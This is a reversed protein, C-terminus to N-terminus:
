LNRQGGFLTRGTYYAMEEITVLQYGQQTLTSVITEAASVTSSQIDHMLLIMCDGAGDLAADITSQTDRTKWDLTDVDWLIFPYNKLLEGVHANYSGYPPRVLYPRVGCVNEVIDNTAEVASLVDEDSLNVLNSHSMTHNGIQCGLSVMRKLADPYYRVKDGCVFFTARAGYKELVDLLADTYPGPGDDYTLCVMPLSPDADSYAPRVPPYPKGDGEVAPHTQRSIATTVTTAATTTKQTGDPELLLMSRIESMPMIVTQVGVAGHIDEDSLYVTCGNDDLAFASFNEASPETARMFTDRLTQPVEATWTERARESAYAYFEGDFVQEPPLRSGTSLRYLATHVKQACLTNNRMYASVTFVLSLLNEGWRRFTYDVGAYEGGMHAGEDSFSNVMTEIDADIASVGVQPYFVRCNNATKEMCVYTEGPPSTHVLRHVGITQVCAHFTFLLIALAVLMLLCATLIRKARRRARHRRARERKAAHERSEYQNM